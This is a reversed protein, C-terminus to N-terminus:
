LGFTTPEFGVGCGVFLNISFPKPSRSERAKKTALFSGVVVQLNAENELKEHAKAVAKELEASVMQAVELNRGREPEGGYVDLTFSGTLSRQSHLKGVQNLIQNLGFRRALQPIERRPRVNRLIM